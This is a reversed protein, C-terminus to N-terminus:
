EDRKQDRNEKNMIWGLFTVWYDLSKIQGFFLGFLIIEFEDLFISKFIWRIICGIRWEFKLYIEILDLFNTRYSLNFKWSLKM